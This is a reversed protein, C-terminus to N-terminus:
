LPNVMRPVEVARAELSAPGTELLGLWQWTPANDSWIHFRATVGETADLSLWLEAPVAAFTQPEFPSEAGSPGRLGGTLTMTVELPVYAQEREGLWDVEPVELPELKLQLNTLTMGTDLVTVDALKVALREIRVHDVCDTLMRVRLDGGIARVPLTAYTEDLLTRRVDISGRTGYPLFQLSPVEGATLREELTPVPKPLVVVADAGSAVLEPALGEGCSLLPLLLLARLFRM